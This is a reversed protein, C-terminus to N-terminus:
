RCQPSPRDTLRWEPVAEVLYWTKPPDAFAGGLLGGGGVLFSLCADGRWRLGSPEAAGTTVARITEARGVAWIRVLGGDDSAYDIFASAYHRGSPSLLPRAGTHVTQGQRDVVVYDGGEYFSMRIGALSQDTWIRDLRYEVCDDPDAECSKDAFPMWRRDTRIELTRGRRRARDSHRAILAAEIDVRGGGGVPAASAPTAPAALVLAFAVAFTAPEFRIAM